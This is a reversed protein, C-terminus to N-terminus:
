QYGTIRETRELADRQAVVRRRKRQAANRHDLEAVVRPCTFEQSAGCVAKARAFREGLGATLDSFGLDGEGRTIQFPRRLREIGGCLPKVCEAVAGIGEMGPQEPGAAL